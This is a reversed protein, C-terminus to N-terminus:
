NFFIYYYKVGFFSILGAILPTSIWGAIINFLTRLNITRMGNIIGIGLVAGIIAQSTSVPVGIKAYIHVTIAEALIAILAPFAGLPILKKGVTYMVNRSYTIVGFSISVAGILALIQPSLNVTNAFVGTVSAVNNAGLAYAGYSGSVILGARLLWDLQILNLNLSNLVTRLIMYLIIAIIMAGIPTGIWCIIVKTFGQFNIRSNFIGIGLVAGIIAQSSSVPLKLYTMITLTIAASFISIFATLLNQDTLSSLTRIGNTGELYAGIIIFVSTLIVATKFRVMRSSVATGFVNAADNAGLSWGM